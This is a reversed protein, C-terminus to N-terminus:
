HATISLEDILAKRISKSAVRVRATHKGNRTCSTRVVFTATEGPALQPLSRFIIVGSDAIYESPGSVDVLEMGSPVECSLGVSEAASTGTNTVTIELRSEGGTSKVRNADTTFKVDLVAMGQVRCEHEAMTMKGHESIVGVQHKTPGDKVAKLSVTMHKMKGPELTGVFWEITSDAANYKGGRDASVYEFGAPLRYKARVNNSEVRGENVVVVEFEAAEEAVTNAPGRVGINLKPEAVSVTEITQETLNGDGVVRVALKQDGGAVGTLSLRARRSEGANLTGIDITLIKGRRHQLGEPIVAQIVVNSAKGTGPNNVEVTYNVSQGVEVNKPGTVAVALMPQEVTFRSSSAGTFRVYANLDVDGTGKPVIVLEVSRSQGAKLEGFTWTASEGTAVPAPEASIVEVGSPLVAEAVVNSVLTSGTNEVIMRCVCNQGVNFRGDHEWRINVTPSQPGSAGPRVPGASQPIVEVPETSTVTPVPPETNDGFDPIVPTADKPETNFVSAASGIHMGADPVVLEPTAEPAPTVPSEAPAAPTSAFDEFPNSPTTTEAAAPSAFAAPAATDAPAASFDPFPPPEAADSLRFPNATETDGFQAATQQITGRSGPTPTYTARQITRPTAPASTQQTKLREVTVKNRAPTTGATPSSPTFYTVPKRPDRTAPVTPATEAVRSSRDSGPRAVLTENGSARGFAEAERQQQLKNLRDWRAFPNDTAFVLTTLTLVPLALTALRKYSM